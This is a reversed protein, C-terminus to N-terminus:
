AAPDPDPHDLPVPPRNPPRGVRRARERIRERVALERDLESLRAELALWHVRSPQGASTLSAAILHRAAMTVRETAWRVREDQDAARPQYRQTQWGNSKM